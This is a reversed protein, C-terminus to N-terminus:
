GPPWSMKRGGMVHVHLHDVSQGGHSKCNVVFRAGMEACGLSVALEQAKYMLSGMLPIEEPTLEMINPIHQKPIVLFHTPAKPDIDHFALIDDDEFFKNSPIEGAIIKCFICDAM